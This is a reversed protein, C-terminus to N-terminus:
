EAEGELQAELGAPIPSTKLQQLLSRRKKEIYIGFVLLLVGSIVFMIGTRAMSGFLNLYTSIILLAIFVIGLNVMSSDRLEIGVQIELLCFVFLGGTCIWRFWNHQSHVDLGVGPVLYLACALAVIGALLALGWRVRWQPPLAELRFVGLVVLILAMAALLPFVWLSIGPAPQYHSYILVWTLPFFCAQFVFLGLRESSSAFSAYASRRLCYGAGLVVLGLLSYLLLQFEDQGFYLWSGEYNVETGFWVGFAILTLIYQVESKLIWPLAAIGLFWLLYANPLRSSLHYVQGILAINALLLCSGALHLAEGTKRYVRQEERLYWGVAHAGLMLAIGVSIKVGRPIENWNAAVLLIIGSAVLLAGLISVVTLFTNEHEKLKFHQIIRSEQETSILGAEQIKKIDAYKM